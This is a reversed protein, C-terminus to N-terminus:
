SAVQGLSSPHLRRPQEWTQECFALVAAKDEARALRVEVDNKGFKSQIM